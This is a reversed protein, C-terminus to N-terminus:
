ALFAVDPAGSSWVTTIAERIDVVSLGDLRTESVVVVGISRRLVSNVDEVQARIREVGILEPKTVLILVGSANSRRPKGRLGSFVAGPALDQTAIALRLMQEAVRGVWIRSTRRIEIGLQARGDAEPDLFLDLVAGASRGSTLKVERAVTFAPSYAQGVLGAIHDETMRLEQVLQERRAARDESSSPSEAQADVVPVEPAPKVLDTSESVEDVRKKDVEETTLNEYEVRSKDLAIQEGTDLRKQSRGWRVLAWALLAIGLGMLVIFIPLPLTDQAWVLLSQRRLIGQGAGPPLEDIRSQPITLVSTAQTLLWPLVVSAAIM